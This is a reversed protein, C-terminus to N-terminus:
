DTQKTTTTISTAHEQLKEYRSTSISATVTAGQVHPEERRDLPALMGSACM